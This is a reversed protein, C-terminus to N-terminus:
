IDHKNTRVSRAASREALLAVKLAVDIGTMILSRRDTQGAHLSGIFYKALCRLRQLPSELECRIAINAQGKQSSLNAVNIKKFAMHKLYLYRQSRDDMDDISNLM